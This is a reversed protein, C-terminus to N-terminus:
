RTVEIGKCRRQAEDYITSLGIFDMEIDCDLGSDATIIKGNRKCIGAHIAIAEQLTYCDAQSLTQAMRESRDILEEKYSPTIIFLTAILLTIAVFLIVIISVFITTVPDKKDKM